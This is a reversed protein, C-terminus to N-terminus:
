YLGTEEKCNKSRGYNKEGRDDIERKRCDGLDHALVSRRENNQTFAFGATGQPTERDGASTM